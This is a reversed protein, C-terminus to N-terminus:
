MISGTLGDEKWSSDCGAHQLLGGLQFTTVATIRKFTSMERKEDAYESTLEKQRMEDEM